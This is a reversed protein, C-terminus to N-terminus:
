KKQQCVPRMSVRKGPRRLYKPRRCQLKHEGGKTRIQPLKYAIGKQVATDHVNDAIHEKQIQEAIIDVVLEAIDPIQTKIQGARYEPTYTM